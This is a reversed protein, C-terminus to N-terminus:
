FSFGEVLLEVGGYDRLLKGESTMRFLVRREWRRTCVLFFRSEPRVLFGEEARSELM